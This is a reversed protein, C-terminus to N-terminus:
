RKVLAYGPHASYENFKACLTEILGTLRPNRHKSRRYLLYVPTKRSRWDPLVPMLFGSQVEYRAFFEPLYALASGEVAFYKALWYQNVRYREYPKVPASARGQHLDWIEPVGGRHYLAGPVGHLDAPNSLKGLSRVFAPAGYVGSSVDALKRCLLTSDPPKGVYLMCDFDIQGPILRDNSYMQLDFDLQPNQIAVHHTAAGLITTGFEASAVIRLRGHVSSHARQAAIAATECSEFIARCHGQYERGAETLELGNPQRLFLQVKLADELRSLQHSLTAKPIGHVASARSISGIEALLLFCKIDQLEYNQM